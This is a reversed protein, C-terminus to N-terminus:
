LKIEEIIDEKKIEELKPVVINIIGNKHTIKINDIDSTEPITFAFDFSSQKIKRCGWKVGEEEGTLGKEYKVNLMRKTKNLQIQIDNKDIGAVAIDVIDANNTTKINMPYNTKFHSNFPSMFMTDDGLFDKFMLDIIGWDDFMSRKRPNFVELEKVM